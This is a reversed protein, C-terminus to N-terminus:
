RRVVVPLPCSRTGFFSPMQFKNPATISLNTLKKSPLTLRPLLNFPCKEWGNRTSYRRHLMLRRQGEAYVLALPSAVSDMAATPSLDSFPPSRSSARETMAAAATSDATAAATSNAAAVAAASAAETATNAARREAQPAHHAELSLGQGTFM